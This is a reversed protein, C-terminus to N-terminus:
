SPSGEEHRTALEALAATMGAAADRGIREFTRRLFPQILRRVGRLRIDATYHIATGDATPTFVIDDTADVGSGSGVLVVRHPPVFAEVRYTMPAVRGGMRVDLHYRAGPAIPGDGLRKSRVVGPDWREANAFDAVLDFTPEIPLATDIREHIRTM